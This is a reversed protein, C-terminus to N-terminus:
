RHFVGGIFVVFASASQVRVFVRYAGPSFQTFRKAQPQLHPPAAPRRQKARSNYRPAASKDLAKEPIKRNKEPIKGPKEPIKGTKKLKCRKRGGEQLSQPRASRPAGSAGCAAGLRGYRRGNAAVCGFSADNAGAFSIPVDSRSQREQPVGDALPPRPACHAGSCRSATIGARLPRRGRCGARLLVSRGQPPASRFSLARTPPPTRSAGCTVIRLIGVISSLSQM